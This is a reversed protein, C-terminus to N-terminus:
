KGKETLRKQVIKDAKLITNVTIDFCTECLTISHGGSKLTVMMGVCTGCRKCCDSM